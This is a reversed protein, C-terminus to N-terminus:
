RIKGNSGGLYPLPFQRSSARRPNGVSVIFRFSGSKVKKKGSTHVIVKGLTAGTRVWQGPEVRTTALGKYITLLDPGHQVWLTRSGDLTWGRYIVRGTAAVTIKALPTTRVILRKDHVRFGQAMTKWSKLPARLDRKMATARTLKLHPDVIKLVFPPTGRGRAVLDVKQARKMLSKSTDWYSQFAPRYARAALHKQSPRAQLAVNGYFATRGTGVTNPRGSWGFRRLEQKSWWAGDYSGSGLPDMVYFGGDGRLAHRSFGLVFVSHATTFGAQLVNNRLNGYWGQVVASRGSRVEGSFSDWRMDEAIEVWQGESRFARRLDMLTTGSTRARSWRRMQAGTVFRGTQVEFLMAGAAMNCNGSAYPSGDFQTTFLRSLGLTVRRPGAIPIATAEPAVMRSAQRGSRDAGRVARHKGSSGTAAVAPSLGIVLVLMLGFLGGLSWPRVARRTPAFHVETV